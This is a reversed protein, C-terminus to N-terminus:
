AKPMTMAGWIRISVALNAPTAFGSKLLAEIKLNPKWLFTNALVKCGKMGESSATIFEAVGTENLLYEGNNAKITLESSNLMGGQNFLDDYPESAILLPTSAAGLDGALLQIVTPVFYQDQELKQKDVNTSGIAKVDDSKFFDVSTQGGILRNSYLVHDVLKLKGAEYQEMMELVKPDPKAAKLERQVVDLFVQTHNPLIRM